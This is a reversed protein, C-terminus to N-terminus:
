TFLSLWRPLCRRPDSGAGRVPQGPGHAPVPSFQSGPAPCPSRWSRTVARSPSGRLHGCPHKETCGRCAAAAAVANPDFALSSGPGQSPEALLRTPVRSWRLALRTRPSCSEPPRPDTWPPQVRQWHMEPKAVRPPPPDLNTFLAPPLWSGAALARRCRARSGPVPCPERRRTRPGRPATLAPTGCGPVRSQRSCPSSTVAASSTRLQLPFDRRPQPSSSGSALRFPPKDESTHCRSRQQARRKTAKPSRSCRAPSEWSVAHAGHGMRAAGRLASTRPSLLM